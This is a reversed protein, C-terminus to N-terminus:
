GKLGQAATASMVTTTSSRPRSRPRTLSTGSSFAAAVRRRRTSTAFTSFIFEQLLNKRTRLIFFASRARVCRRACSSASAVWSRGGMPKKTVKSCSRVTWTAMSRHFGFAEFFAGAGAAAAVLGAGVARLSFSIRLHQPFVLARLIVHPCPRTSRRSRAYSAGNGCFTIYSFRGTRNLAEVFARRHQEVHMRNPMRMQEITIAM